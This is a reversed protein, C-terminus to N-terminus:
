KWINRGNIIGAFLTKDEAFGHQRLLSLTKAGEAFDLGIGDFPLTQLTEYCYRVDGFYTQIVLKAGKKASLVSRYLEAFLRIDEPTLGTVLCPEDLQIWQAGLEDLRTLVDQYARAIDSIFHEA